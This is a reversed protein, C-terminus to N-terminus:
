QTRCTPGARAAVGPVSPNKRLEQLASSIRVRVEDYIRRAGLAGSFDLHEPLPQELLDSRDFAIVGDDSLGPLFRAGGAKVGREQGRGLDRLSGRIHFCPIRHAKAHEGARHEDRAALPSADGRTRSPASRQYLARMSSLRLGSDLKLARRRALM